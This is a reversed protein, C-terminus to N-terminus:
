GPVMCVDHQVRPVTAFTQGAQEAPPMDRSRTEARDVEEDLWTILLLERCTIRLDLLQERLVHAILFHHLHQPRLLQLEDREVLHRRLRLGRAADYPVVIAVHPVHAHEVHSRRRGPFRVLEQYMLGSPVGIADSVNATSAVPLAFRMTFIGGVDSRDRDGGDRVFRHFSANRFWGAIRLQDALRLLPKPENRYKRM